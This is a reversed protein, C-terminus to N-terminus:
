QAKKQGLIIEISSVKSYRRGPNIRKELAIDVNKIIANSLYKKRIIEAVDVAHSISRGMAKLICSKHENLLLISEYIYKQTPKKGIYVCNETRNSKEPM